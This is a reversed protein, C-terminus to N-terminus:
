FPVKSLEDSRMNFVGDSSIWHKTGDKDQYGVWLQDCVSYLENNDWESMMIPDLEHESKELTIHWNKRYNLEPKDPFDILAVNMFKGGALWNAYGNVHVQIPMGDFTEKWMNLKSILTSFVPLTGIYEVTIHEYPIKHHPFLGPRLAIFVRGGMFANNM